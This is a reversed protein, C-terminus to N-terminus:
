HDCFKGWGVKSNEPLPLHWSMYMAGSITVVPM